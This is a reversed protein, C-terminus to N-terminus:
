DRRPPPELGKRFAERRREQEAVMEDFRARQEPRLLARIEDDGRHRIRDVEPEVPAFARRTDTWTRWVIEEVSRAQTEDLRLEEKYKRVLADPRRGAPRSEASTMWRDAAVGAAAGSAFLLLALGLAMARRKAPESESTMTM